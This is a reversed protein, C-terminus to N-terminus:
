CFEEAYAQSIEDLTGFFNVKIVPYKDFFKNVFAEDNM